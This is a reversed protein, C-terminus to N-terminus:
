SLALYIENLKFSLPSAASVAAPPLRRASPPVTVVRDSVASWYTKALVLTLPLPAPQSYRKTDGPSQYAISTVLVALARRRSVLVGASPGLRNLLRSLGRMLRYSGDPARTAVPSGRASPRLSNM